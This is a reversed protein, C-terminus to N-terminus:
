FKCDLAYTQAPSSFYRGALRNDIEAITQRTQDIQKKVETITESVTKLSLHPYEQELTEIAKDPLESYNICIATSMNIREVIQTLSLEIVKLKEEDLADLLDARSELPLTTKEEETTGEEEIGKQFEISVEITTGLVEADVGQTEVGKNRLAPLTDSIWKHAQRAFEQHLERDQTILSPSEFRKALQTLLGIQFVTSQLKDIAIQVQSYAFGHWYMEDTKALNSFVESLSLNNDNAPQLSNEVVGKQTPASMMIELQQLDTIFESLRDKASALRSKFDKDGMISM